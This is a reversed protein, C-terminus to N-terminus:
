ARRAVWLDFRSPRRQRRLAAVFPRLEYSLPYRVKCRKWVLEPAARHLRGETLFEIFPLAMLQEARSGFCKRKQAVM